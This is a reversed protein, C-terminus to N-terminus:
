GTDHSHLSFVGFPSEFVPLHGIFLDKTSLFVSYCLGYLSHFPFCSLAIFSSLGISPIFVCPSSPM